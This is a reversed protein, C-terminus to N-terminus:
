KKRLKTAHARQLYELLGMIRAPDDALFGLAFNCHDCLIGRVHGTKHDHDVHLRNLSGVLPLACGINACQGLQAEFMEQKGRLTMGYTRFLHMEYAEYARKRERERVVKTHAVREALTMYRSKYQKRPGTM